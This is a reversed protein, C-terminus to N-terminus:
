RPPENLRNKRNELLTTVETSAHAVIGGRTKRLQKVM